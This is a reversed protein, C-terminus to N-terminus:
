GYNYQLSHPHLFKWGKISPAFRKVWDHSPPVFLKHVRPKGIKLGGGGGGGGGM